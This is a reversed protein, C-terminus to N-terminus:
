LAKNEQYVTEPIILQNYLRQLLFLQGIILLNSIPSTDSVIIM